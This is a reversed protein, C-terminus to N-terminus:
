ETTYKRGPCTVRYLEGGTDPDLGGVPLERIFIPPEPSSLGLATNEPDKAIFCLHCTQQKWAQRYYELEFGNLAIFRSDTLENHHYFKDHDTFAIVSYGHAMYDAKVQEPSKHGDSLNTHTHLNAKYWNANKPLLDIVM